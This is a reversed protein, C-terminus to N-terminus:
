DQVYPDILFLIIFLGIIVMIGYGIFVIHYATRYSFAVSLNKITVGSVSQFFAGGLGAGAGALGYVSATANKSIIDPTLAIANASFSAHCVM